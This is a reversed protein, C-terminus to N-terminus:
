ATAGGTVATFKGFPDLHSDFLVGAPSLGSDFQFLARLPAPFFFDLTHQKEPNGM